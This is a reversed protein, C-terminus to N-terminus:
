LVPNLGFVKKNVEYESVPTPCLEVMGIRIFGFPIHLEFNPCSLCFHIGLSICSWGVFFFYCAFKKM